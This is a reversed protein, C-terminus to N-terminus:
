AEDKKETEIFNQNGIALELKGAANYSLGSLVAPINPLKTNQASLINVIITFAFLLKIKNM